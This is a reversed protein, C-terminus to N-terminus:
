PQTMGQEQDGPKELGQETEASQNRRGHRQLKSPGRPLQQQHKRLFGCGKEEEARERQPKGSGQTSGPSRPM